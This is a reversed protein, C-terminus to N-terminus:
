SIQMKITYATFPNFERKIMIKDKYTMGLIVM